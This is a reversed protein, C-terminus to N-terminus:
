ESEGRLNRVARASVRQVMPNPDNTAELLAPLAPLADAGWDELARAAQYRLEGDGAKLARVLAPLAAFPRPHLRGLIRAAAYAVQADSDKLAGALAPAVLATQQAWLALLAVGSIRLSADKSSLAGFLVRTAGPTHLGLNRVVEMAQSLRNQRCLDDLVPDAERPEFPLKRLIDLITSPGVPFSFAGKLSELLAPAAPLAKSGLASLAWAAELRIVARPTPPRPAISRLRPPFKRYYLDSYALTLRSDERRFQDVLYPLANTGLARLADAAPDKLLGQVDVNWALASPGVPMRGIPPRGPVRAGVSRPFWLSGASPARGLSAAQSAGLAGNPLVVWFIGNTMQHRGEAARFERFWQATTRGRYTPGRAKWVYLGLGAGLLLIAAAVLLQRRASM